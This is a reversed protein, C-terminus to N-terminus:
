FIRLNMAEHLERLGRSYCPPLILEMKLTLHPILAKLFEGPEDEEELTEHMKNRGGCCVWVQVITRLVNVGCGCFFQVQLDMKQESKHIVRSMCLIDNQIKIYELLFRALQFGKMLERWSPQTTCAINELQDAAYTSINGMMHEGPGLNGMAM